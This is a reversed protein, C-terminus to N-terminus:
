TATSPAVTSEADMDTSRKSADGCLSSGNFAGCYFIVQHLYESGYIALYSAALLLSIRKKM